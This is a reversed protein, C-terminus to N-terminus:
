RWWGRGSRATARRAAGAVPEMAASSLRAVPTAGYKMPLGFGSIIRDASLVSSAWESVVAMIPSRISVSMTAPISAPTSVIRTSVPMAVRASASRNGYRADRITSETASRTSVKDYGRRQLASRAARARRPALRDGAETARRSCPSRRPSAAGLAGQVGHASLGDGRARPRPRAAPMIARLGGDRALRMVTAKADEDDGAVFVDLPRGDVSGALLPGAFTTNFAKVVRAGEPAAAAITEAGSRLPAVDLPELVSLDVPNTVDVLVAGTLESAHQRVAHPAQTFPVALVVVDGEATESPRVEGQGALEDALDSAKDFHTGVFTM